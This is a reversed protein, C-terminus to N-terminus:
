SNRDRGAAQPPSRWGGEPRPGARFGLSGALWHIQTDEIHVALSWGASPSPNSSGLRKVSSRRLNTVTLVWPPAVFRVFLGNKYRQKAILGIMRVIQQASDGIIERMWGGRQMTQIRYRGTGAFNADARRISQVV